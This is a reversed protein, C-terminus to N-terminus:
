ATTIISNAVEALVANFDRSFVRYVFFTDFSNFLECSYRLRIFDDSILALGEELSTYGPIVCDWEFDYGPPVPNIAMKSKITSKVDPSLFNYLSDLKHGIPCRLQAVDFGANILLAKLFLESSFAYLASVNISSFHNEELFLCIRRWEHASSLFIASTFGHTRLENKM